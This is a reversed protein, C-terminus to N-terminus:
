AVPFFNGALRPAVNARLTVANSHSVDGHVVIANLGFLSQRMLWAVVLALVMLAFVLGFALSLANMLRVDPPLPVPMSPTM